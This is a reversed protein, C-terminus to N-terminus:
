VSWLWNTSLCQEIVKGPQLAIKKEFFIALCLLVWHPHKGINVILDHLPM